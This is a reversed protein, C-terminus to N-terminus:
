GGAKVEPLHPVFSLALRALVLAILVLVAVFAFLLVIIKAPHM